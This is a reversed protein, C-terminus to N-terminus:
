KVSGPKEFGIVNREDDYVVTVYRGELDGIGDIMEDPELAADLLKTIIADNQRYFVLGPGEIEFNFYGNGPDYATAIMSADSPRNRPPSPRPTTPPLPLASPPPEVEPAQMHEKPAVRRVRRKRRATMFQRICDHEIEPYMRFVELLRNVAEPPKYSGSIWRRVTRETAGVVQGAQLHTLNHMSIWQDLNM